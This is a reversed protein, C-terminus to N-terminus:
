GENGSNARKERMAKFREATAIEDVTGWVGTEYELLGWREMEQWTWCRGRDQHEEDNSANIGRHKDFSVHTLFLAGCVTCYCRPSGAAMVPRVRIDTM